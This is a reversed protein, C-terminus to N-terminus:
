ETPEQKSDTEDPSNTDEPTTVVESTTAPPVPNTPTDDRNSNWILFALIAATVGLAILPPRSPKNDLSVSPENAQTGPDSIALETEETTGLESDTSNTGDSEPRNTAAVWQAKGLKMVIVTGDADTDLVAPSVCELLDGDGGIVEFHDAIALNTSYTIGLESLFDNVRDEILEIQAGRELSEKLSLLHSVHVRRNKSSSVISKRLGDYANASLANGPDRVVLATEIKTLASQIDSLKRRLTM